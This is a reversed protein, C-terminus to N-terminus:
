CTVITWLMYFGACTTPADGDSVCEHISYPLKDNQYKFSQTNAIADNPADQLPPDNKNTLCALVTWIVSLLHLSNQLSFLHM